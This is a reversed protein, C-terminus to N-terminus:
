LCLMRVTQGFIKKILAPKYIQGFTYFTKYSQGKFVSLIEPVLVCLWWRKSPEIWLRCSQSRRTVLDRIRSWDSVIWRRVSGHELVRPRRRCGSAEWNQRCSSLRWRNHRWCHLTDLFQVPHIRLYRRGGTLRTGFIIKHRDLDVRLLSLHIPTAFRNTQDFCISKYQM